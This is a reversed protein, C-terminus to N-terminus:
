DEMFIKIVDKYDICTGEIEPHREIYNKTFFVKAPIARHFYTRLYLDTFVIFFDRFMFFLTWGIIVIFVLKVSMKIYWLM